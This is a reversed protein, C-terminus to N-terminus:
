RHQWLSRLTLSASWRWSGEGSVRIDRRVFRLWALAGFLLAILLLGALWDVDLGSIAEGGQYYHHPMLRALPQLDSNIRALSTIFYSAVLAIGATSAALRRSPLLMSLLLALMGFLLLQAMLSVFPLIMDFWHIDLPTWSMPIVFGLWVIALIALLALCFALVRGMFLATRSVPYALLLDLRGSEEDSALLGSGLLVAFIGVILPMYSFFELNIYSGPSTFDLDEFDGFFAMMDSPYSELLKELTEKQDLVTGYFQVLMLALLLLSIGWGLIQGRYGKFTHRFITNM